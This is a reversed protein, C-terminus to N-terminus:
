QGPFRSEIEFGEPTFRAVVAILGPYSRQLLPILMDLSASPTIREGGVISYSDLMLAYEGERLVGSGIRYSLEEMEDANLPIFEQEIM